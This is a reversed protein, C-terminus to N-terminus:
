CFYRVEDVRLFEWRLVKGNDFNWIHRMEANVPSLLMFSSQDVRKSIM